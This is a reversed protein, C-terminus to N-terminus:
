YEPIICAMSLHFTIINLFHAIKKLALYTNRNLIFLSSIYFISINVALAYLKILNIRNIFVIVKFIQESTM